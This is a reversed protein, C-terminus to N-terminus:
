IHILSLESLEIMGLEAKLGDNFERLLGLAQPRGSRVAEEVRKARSLLVSAVAADGLIHIPVSGLKPKVFQPKDVLWRLLEEYAGEFRDVNEFNFYIRGRYFVPVCAAGADDLETIVAAYKDQSVKGYLDPSIIQSEAGVGGSRGDAKEAYVRDCIMIVKGITQDTIMSEMFAHADHGPKLDWKDLIVDVGDERLRSALTMVWSQHTPSSWSYSIFARVPNPQSHEAVQKM